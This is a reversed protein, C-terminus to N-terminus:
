APAAVAPPGDINERPNMMNKERVADVDGHYSGKGSPDTLALSALEFACLGVHPLWHKRGKKWQGTVFPTAGLAIAGLADLALHVKFPIVKVIGLQYSTFASYGAHIAGSTRIQKASRTGEVGVLKPFVTTLLAGVQYDTAGHLTEDIPKPRSRM